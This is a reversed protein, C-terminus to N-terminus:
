YVYVHIIFIFQVGTISKLLNQNKENEENLVLTVFSGRGCHVDHLDKRDYVSYEVAHQRVVSWLYVSM